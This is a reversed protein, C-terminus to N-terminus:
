ERRSWGITLVSSKTKTVVGQPPGHGPKVLMPKGSRASTLAAQRIDERERYCPGCIVEGTKRFTGFDAGTLQGCERCRSM